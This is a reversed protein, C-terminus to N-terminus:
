FLRTMFAQPASWISNGMWMGNRFYLMGRPHTPDAAKCQECDPVDDVNLKNYFIARMDGMPHPNRYVAEYAIHDKIVHYEMFSVIMRQKEREAKAEEKEIKQYAKTLETSSLNRKKWKASKKWQM